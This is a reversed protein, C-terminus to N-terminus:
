NTPLTLHTYSVPTARHAVNESDLLAAVGELSTDAHEGGQYLTDNTGAKVVGCFTDCLLLHKDSGLQALRKAALLGTGGKWVGIEIVDGAVNATQRLLDWLEHCRYIDVLTVEEIRRFVDMFQTDAYWPSYTARSILASHPFDEDLPKIWTDRLHRMVLRRNHDSKVTKM